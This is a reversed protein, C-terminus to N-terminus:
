KGRMRERLLMFGRQQEVMRSTTSPKREYEGRPPPACLLRVVRACREKETMARLEEKKIQELLPGTEKWIRVWKRTQELATEDM